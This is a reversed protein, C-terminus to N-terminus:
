AREAIFAKLEDGTGCSRARAAPAHQKILGTLVGGYGVEVFEDVAGSALCFDVSQSWRVPQVVQQTLADRVDAAARTPRARADVNWVVPVAPPVRLTALTADLFAGLQAAAPAMLSSHFPASVDLPVARRVRKERKAIEVAAAVAGADGSIVVQKSSNYNAVQCPRETRQAALRCIAEADSASVPMLAAMAGVGEPVASQMAIGRFRVLRVADAFALADAAVLASYEGLSHGLVFAARQRVDLGAESQLVRLTAISVALIAPQAVATQTLAAQPGDRLLALLNVGAAESAEDLVDRTLRPWNTLLEAAMGVRQSGQGPFVLALRRAAMSQERPGQQQQQQLQQGSSTPNSGGGGGGGEHGKRGHRMKKKEDMVGSRQKQEGSGDGGRGGPGSRGGADRRWREDSPDGSGSDGAGGGASGHRGDEEVSPADRKRSSSSSVLSVIKRTGSPTPPQAGSPASAAGTSLQREAREPREADRAAAGSGEPAGRGADARSTSSSSSSAAAAATANSEPRERGERRGEQGKKETLQRRLAAESPEVRQRKRSESPPEGGGGGGSEKKPTETPRNSSSSSPAPASSDNADRESAPASAAGGRERERDRDRGNRRGEASRSRRERSRDRKHGSVTLPDTAASAASSSSNNGGNGRSGLGASSALPPRGPSTADRPERRGRKEDNHRGNSDDTAVRDSDRRKLRSGGPASTALSRNGADKAADSVAPRESSRRSSSSSTSPPAATAASPPPPSSIEGSELDQRLVRGSKRERSSSESATAPPPSSAVKEVASDGVAAASTTATTTMTATTTATEKDKDAGAAAAASDPVSDDDAVSTPKKEAVVPVVLLKDELLTAKRKTLLAFYRRAMIKIDERAEATLAEVTGLLGEATSKSAPFVDILKTLLVLTTRIPMYEGGALTAAFARAMGKHWKAYVLKYQRHPLKKTPDHLDVSFGSRGHLADEEYAASSQYWRLLLSVSEKLFIGLNGAERETVCLVLPPLKLNVLNYYQLTSFAPTNIAHLRAMFKACFLADEPSLLARPVVCTQLLEQVASRSDGGAQGDRAVFLAAKTAELREFVRKRHAVQDKQENTLTDIMQATKEKLKKREAGTLPGNAAANMANRLRLIEAEYQPFPVHIDYLILSWFTVYLDKTMGEFPEPADVGVGVGVGVSAGRLAEGVDALLAPANMFWNRRAAAGEGPGLGGSEPGAAGATGASGPAHISRPAKRLVPDDFRIAPRCLTMALEPRVHYEHVLAALSPLMQAYARPDVVGNLFQLLQSLTMQCTDYVRGLLKLHQTRAAASEHFEIRSRMQCILLCLPLALDRKVLADRLRPIARRNMLKPDAPEHWLHPGGAQAELQSLSIDEFSICSGMKSLLESLVVLDVSEWNQLRQILYQLLGALEVTPYKRYFSGAFSALSALWLSVNTGDSKMAQRSRALESVLVFSLADMGLPTVFKFSEVVPQILNDYSQIQRLMTRFVVLPNAHAFHTLARASPKARDATLRRMVKRTHQVVQAEVLKMEPSRAYAAQWQQYMRYRQEFPFLKLVDWLQFVASPNSGQHTLAPLFSKVVVDQVAALLGGSETTTTTTAPKKKAESELLHSIIRLLKTFLLPDHHLQPGLMELIPFVVSVLEDPRTLAPKGFASAAQASTAAAASAAAAAASTSAVLQMPQLSLPAYLERILAHVSACLQASLPKSALPNVGRAQFWQIMEFARTEAGIELLGAILGFVQNHADSDATDPSAASAAAAADAAEDTKSALNVKGFARAEAELQTVRARHQAVIEDRSPALHPLLADVDLLENALLTAALRYLSRPTAPGDATAAAAAARPQYFQFKFGLIHPISARKFAGLLEVFSANQPQVEFADLALDLVRSADLDFYGILAMLDTKSAELQAPTVGTHLLSLVKAFGESEERLLNYKRQTYLSKTNIRLIKKRMVQPGSVLGAEHLLDYELSAKLNFPPVVDEDAITKVFRCLQQWEPSSHRERGKESTEIENGVVWVLDLFTECADPFSSLEAEKLVAVVEQRTLKAHVVVSVLEYLLRYLDTAPDLAKADTEALAQSLKTRIRRAGSESWHQLTADDLLPRM